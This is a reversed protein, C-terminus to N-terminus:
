KEEVLEMTKPNIELSNNFIQLFINGDTHTDVVIMTYDKARYIWKNLFRQTYIENSYYNMGDDFDEVDNAFVVKGNNEEDEIYWFSYTQNDIPIVVWDEKYGFYEHIEKELEFYDDLMKM